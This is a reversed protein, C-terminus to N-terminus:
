LIVVRPGTRPRVQGYVAEWITARIIDGCAGLADVVRRENGVAIQLGGKPM